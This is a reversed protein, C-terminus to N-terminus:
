PMYGKLEGQDLLEKVKVYRMLDRHWERIDIFDGATLGTYASVRLIGFKGTRNEKFYRVDRDGCEDDLWLFPRNDTYELIVASKWHIGPVPPHSPMKGIFEIVPLEPLGLRPGILTNAEHEWTTCWTLEYLEALKNLEEGHWPNLWVKYTLLKHLHFREEPPTESKSSTTKRLQRNSRAWPNLPGDVDILLLPKDTM